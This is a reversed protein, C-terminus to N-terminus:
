EIIYDNKNKNKNNHHHIINNNKNYIQFQDEEMFKYYKDSIQYYKNIEPAFTLKDNEKDKTEKNYCLRDSVPISSLSHNSKFIKVSNKNIKPHFNLNENKLDEKKKIEQKINNIKNEKKENWKENSVLWQNFDGENFKTKNKKNNINEKKNINERMKELKNNKEIEIEKLRKYIPTKNKTLKKSINNIKPKYTLESMIEEAEKQRKIELKREKKRKFDMERSYLDGDPKNIKLDCNNVILSYNKKEKSKSKSKSIKSYKSNMYQKSSSKKMQITISNIKSIIKNFNNNDNLINTNYNNNNNNAYKKNSKDESSNNKHRNNTKNTVDSYSNDIFPILDNINSSNTNYKNTYNMNNICSSNNKNIFEQENNINIEPKISVKASSECECIKFTNIKNQINQTINKIEKMLKKKSHSNHKEKNSNPGTSGGIIDIIEENGNIKKNNSTEILEFPSEKNENTKDIYFCDLLEKSKIKLLPCHLTEKMSLFMQEKDIEENLSNPAEKSFSNTKM